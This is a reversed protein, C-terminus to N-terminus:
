RSRGPGVRSRLPSISLTASRASPKKASTKAVKCLGRRLTTTSRLARTLLLQGDEESMRRKLAEILVTADQRSIAGQGRETSWGRLVIADPVFSEVAARRQDRTSESGRTVKERHQVRPAVSSRAVVPPFQPIQGWRSGAWADSPGQPPDQLPASLPPAHSPSAASSAAASGSSGAPRPVERVPRSVERLPELQQNVRGVILESLSTLHEQFGAFHRDWSGLGSARLNRPTRCKRCRALGSRL